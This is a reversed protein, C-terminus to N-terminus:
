QATLFGGISGVTENLPLVTSTVPALVPRPNWAAKLYAASPADLSMRPTRDMWLPSAAFFSITRLVPQRASFIVTRCASRLVKAETCGKDLLQVSELAQVDRQEVGPQGRGGVGRAGPAPLDRRLNVNEGRSEESDEEQGLQVVRGAPGLGGGVEAKDVADGVLLHRGVPQVGVLAEDLLDVVRGGEVVASLVGQDFQGGGVHHQTQQLGQAGLVHDDDVGGTGTEAPRVQTAVPGPVAPQGDHEELGDERAGRLLATPGQDARGGQASFAIALQPGIIGM